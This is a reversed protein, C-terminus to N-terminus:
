LVVKVAPFAALANYLQDRYTENAVMLELNFSHYKGCRSSHSYSVVHEATGVVEAIASAVAERGGGIVKFLWLCPYQIDPKISNIEEM